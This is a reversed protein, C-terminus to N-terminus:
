CRAVFAGDHRRVRIPGGERLLAGALRRFEERVAAAEPATLGPSGYIDWLELATRVDPLMIEGHWERLEVEAFNRRMYREGSTLDFRVGVDPAPARGLARRVAQAQLEEFELMHDDAVTATVFRGGPKLCRKFGALASDIDRMFYLTWCTVIADFAADRFPLHEMEGSLLAFRRGFRECASAVIAASMDLGIVAVGPFAREMEELLWGSGFGLECIRSGRTAAPALADILTVVALPADTAHRGLWEIAPEMGGGSAFKERALERPDVDSM